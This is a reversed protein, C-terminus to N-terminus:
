SFAMSKEPTACLACSCPSPLAREPCPLSGLCEDLLPGLCEVSHLTCAGTQWRPNAPCTARLVFPASSANLISSFIISKWPALQWPLASASCLALASEISSLAINKKPAAQQAYCNNPLHGPCEFRAPCKFCPFINAARPCCPANPAFPGSVRRLLRTMSTDHM